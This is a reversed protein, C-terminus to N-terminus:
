LICSIFSSFYSTNLIASHYLGSLTDGRERRKLWSEEPKQQGTYGLWFVVVSVKRCRTELDQWTVSLASNKTTTIRTTSHLESPLVSYLLSSSLPLLLLLLLAWLLQHLRNFESIDPTNMEKILRLDNWTMWVCLTISTKVDCLM